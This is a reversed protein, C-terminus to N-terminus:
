PHEPETPRASDNRYRELQARIRQVDRTAGLETARQLAREAAQVALDHHGASAHATALTSLVIPDESRSRELAQEAIRVAESPNRTSPDPHTALIWAAGALSKPNYPDLRVAERFHHLAEDHRGVRLLVNALNSHAFADNPGYRVAARLHELAAELEGRLQLLQGYNTHADVYTPLIELARRLQADAEDIRGLPILAVALNLHVEHDDPDLAIAENLYQLAEDNRNLEGLAVGLNM